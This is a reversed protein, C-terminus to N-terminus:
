IGNSCKLWTRSQWEKSHLWTKLGTWKGTLRHAAVATHLHVIISTERWGTLIDLDAKRKILYLPNSFHTKPLKVTLRPQCRTNKQGLWLGQNQLILALTIFKFRLKLIGLWIHRPHGCIRHWCKATAEDSADGETGTQVPGKMPEDLSLYFSM